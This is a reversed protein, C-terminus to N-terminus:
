YNFDKDRVVLQRESSSELQSLDDNKHEIHLDEPNTISLPVYNLMVFFTSM